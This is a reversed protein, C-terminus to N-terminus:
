SNQQEVLPATKLAVLNRIVRAIKGSDNIEAHRGMVMM